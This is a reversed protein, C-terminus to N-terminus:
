LLPELEAALMETSVAGIFKEQVCGESDLIFTEPVGSVGLEVALRDGPDVLIPFAPTNSLLWNKANPVTDHWMIGYFSVGRPEYLKRTEVLDDHELECSQCYTSWFNLVIAKGEIADLDVSTEDITSFGGTLRPCTGDLNDSVFRPERSINLALVVILPVVLVAGIGLVKLNM